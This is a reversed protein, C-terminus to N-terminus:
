LLDEMKIDLGKEIITDFIETETLCKKLRYSKDVVYVLHFSQPNLRFLVQKVPMKGFAVMAQVPLLGKEILSEKKYAMYSMFMFPAQKEEQGAAWFLFTGAILLMLNPGSNLATALFLAWLFFALIKGARAAMRVAKIFSVMQSLWLMFIKGGDLPLAPLLNFLGLTLQYRVFVNATDYDVLGQYTLSIFVAAMLLNGAPGALVVAVESERSSQYFGKINIRGGLPLLELEEVKIGVARAASIHSIEHVLIALLAAVVEEYLGAAFGLAIIAAFLFHLRIRVGFVSFAM